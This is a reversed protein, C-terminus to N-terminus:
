DTGPRTTASPSSRRRGRRTPGSPRSPLDRTGPVTGSAAPGSIPRPSTESRRRHRFPGSVETMRWRSARLPLRPGRGPAQVAPINTNTACLYSLLCEFLPQRVVRLGRCSDIAAGIAPDRDIAALIRDLDLDLALYHRVFPEDAGSYTCCAGTSASASAGATWWARGATGSVGGASPRGAGSPPTSTSRSPSPSGSPRLRAHGETRPPLRPADRGRHPTRHVARGCLGAADALRAVEGPGTLSSVLLLARGGPALVAPLGYLFRAITRRGDPGGDLAYELWDDLREDPATPLYPPNFLVLDFPGRVGTLLDARLVDLGLRRAARVAHPNLDLAVVRADRAAIAAAIHGSGTGVELVCDRPHVEALAAELLLRTDEEVPYVQPHTPDTM